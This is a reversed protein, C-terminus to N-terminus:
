IPEYSLRNSRTGSLCSTPPELGSSGVLSISSIEFLLKFVSYLSCVVSLLPFFNFFCNHSFCYALSLSLRFLERFFLVLLSSRLLDLLFPRLSSAKAIPASSPRSLSRFAEPLHLHGVIRLHGFPSVGKGFLYPGTYSDM